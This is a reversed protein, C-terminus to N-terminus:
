SKESNVPLTPLADLLNGTYRAYHKSVMSLDKHGALKAAALLGHSSTVTSLVTHRTQYPYRYQIGLGELIPKWVKRRFSAIDIYRGRHGKFVFSCDYNIDKKSESPKSLGLLLSFLEDNMPIYRVHGTKTEKLIKRTKNPGASLDKGLAQKVAITANDFDVCGWTLGTVEGLRCGTIFLFRVFSSYHSHKYPSSPHCFKNSDFAQLIQFIEESSFPKIKDVAIKKASKLSQYPNKGEFIGERICWAMCSKLYGKRNSWTSVAWVDRLELFWSIDSAKPNYKRIVQRVAHYHGNRTSPPLHLSTVYRDWLELLTRPIADKEKTLSKVRPQTKNKLKYSQLSLDFQGIQWEYTMQQILQKAVLEDKTGPYFRKRRGELTFDIRYSGKDKTLNFKMELM